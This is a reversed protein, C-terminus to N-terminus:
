DGGKWLVSGTCFLWKHMENEPNYIVGTLLQLDHTSQSCTCRGALRAAIHLSACSVREGQRM